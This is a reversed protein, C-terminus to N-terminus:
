IKKNFPVLSHPVWTLKKWRRAVYRITFSLFTTNFGGCITHKLPESIWLVIEGFFFPINHEANVSGRQGVYVKWDSFRNLAKMYSLEIQLCM